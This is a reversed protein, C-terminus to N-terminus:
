TTFYSVYSRELATSYIELITIKTFYGPAYLRFVMVVRELSM